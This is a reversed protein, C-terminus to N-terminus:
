YFISVGSIGLVANADACTDRPSFQTVSRYIGFNIADGSRLTSFESPTSTIKFRVAASKNPPARMRIEAANLAFVTLADSVTLGATAVGATQPHSPRTRFLFDPRLVFDGQTGSSEWLIIM